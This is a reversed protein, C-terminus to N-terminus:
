EKLQDLIGELKTISTSVNGEVNIKETFMGLYKGLLEDAKIRDSAREHPNSAIKNLRDVIKDVTIGARAEAAGQLEKILEQVGVNKLLRGAMSYATKESYGAKIAARTASHEKVYEVAFAKQRANLM